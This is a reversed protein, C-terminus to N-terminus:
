LLYRVYPIEVDEDNADVVCIDFVLATQHAPIAKKTVDEVLQRLQTGLKEKRKAPPMFFSYLMSVGCSVMQVEMNHQDKFYAMFDRLTMPAKLDFRDWLSWETDNYKLKPAPMPESFGIFPLSLNVFANKYLALTTNGAALKYLELCVLGAVMSTTTAIAPIIKGAIGKTKLRDATPIGYNCARLNSMAAVLDVHYNSDDDKEFEVPQLRFTGITDRHPLQGLLQEVEESQDANQVPENEAVQFKIGSKPAFATVHVRALAAKLAAVDNHGKLGFV